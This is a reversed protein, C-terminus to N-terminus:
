VKRKLATMYSCDDCKTFRGGKHFRVQIKEGSKPNEFTRLVEYFTSQAPMKTLLKRGPQTGEQMNKLCYYLLRKTAFSFTAVGEKPDFDAMNEMAWRIWAAIEMQMTPMRPENCARDYVIEGKEWAQKRLVLTSSGIGTVACFARRCVQLDGVMYCRRDARKKEYFEKPDGRCQWFRDLLWQGQQKVTMCAYFERVSVMQHITFKSLCGGSCCNRDRLEKEIVELNLSRAMSIIARVIAADDPDSVIDRVFSQDIKLKDVAFRKLYALSSYGTGFDDISLCVGLAKFRRM